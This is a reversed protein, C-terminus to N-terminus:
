ALHALLDKIRVCIFRIQCDAVGYPLFLFDAVKMAGCTYIVNPVYGERTEESPALIPVKSRGLIRKPDAKDLLVAGLAYRRMAGVGHYLVLWGEDLEIPSGCNGLQILEWTEVPDMFREGFNWVLKDDSELYYLSERDLRGIAAYRGNLRRPFLALGKHLAAAGRMPSLHFTRFDPTEFLECSTEHGSYATYTGLYTSAGNDETFKVLRLDELGNIQARTAPFIVTDSVRCTAHSMLTVPGDLPNDLEPRAAVAFGSEPLLEMGGDPYVTGERFSITSIHGEGVTRVSLIFNLSGGKTGTQDPHLVVSPNMVAAAQYSYEQSFFAGILAAHDEDVAEMGGIAAQIQKFRDLFIGRTHWHRGVFDRNVAELEAHIQEPPMDIIASCIRAARSWSSQATGRPQTSVDFPRLVVREPNPKLIIHNPKMDMKAIGSVTEPREYTDAM